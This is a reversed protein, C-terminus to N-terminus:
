VRDGDAKLAPLLCLGQVVGFSLKASDEDESKVMVFTEM